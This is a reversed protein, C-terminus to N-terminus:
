DSEIGITETPCRFYTFNTNLIELLSWFNLTGEIDSTKLAQNFGRNTNFKKAHTYEGDKWQDIVSLSMCDKRQPMPYNYPDPQHALPIM